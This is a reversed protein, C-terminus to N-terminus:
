AEEKYNRFIKELIRMKLWRPIFRFLVVAAYNHKGPIIVAKGKLMGRIAIPAVDDPYMLLVKSKWGQAEIRKLGDENTLVPGPCLATVPLGHERLEERLALSFSYIFSKTGTYVAKYPIPLTAEMSSMNMIRAGPTKQMKPLLLYTLEIMVQNNLQLMTKYEALTTHNFKGSRGFGVNNILYSISYGKKECWDFIQQSSNDQALNLGLSDVFVNHKERIEAVTETLEDNPLAVILVPIGRKACDFAMARGIGHSGGTILAFTNNNLTNGNPEMM